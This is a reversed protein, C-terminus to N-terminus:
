STDETLSAGLSAPAARRRQSAALLAIGGRLVDDVADDAM